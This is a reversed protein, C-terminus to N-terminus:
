VLNCLFKSWWWGPSWRLLLWVVSSAKDFALQIVQTLGDDLRPADDCFYWRNVKSININPDWISVAMLVIHEMSRATSDSVWWYICCNNNFLSEHTNYWHWHKHIFSIHFVIIKKVVSSFLRYNLDHRYIFGKQWGSYNEWIPFM